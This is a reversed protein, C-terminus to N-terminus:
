TLEAVFRSMGCHHSPKLVRGYIGFSALIRYLIDRLVGLSEGITKSCMDWVRMNSVGVAM